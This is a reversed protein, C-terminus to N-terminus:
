APALRHASRTGGVLALKTRVRDADRCGARDLILLAQQWAERASSPNGTADHTDGLHVLLEVLREVAVARNAELALVALIFRQRRPGLPVRRGHVYADVPGLLHLDM